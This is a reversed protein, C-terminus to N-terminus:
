RRLRGKGSRRPLEDLAEWCAASLQDGQERLCRLSGRGPPADPCLREVDQGCAELLPAFRQARREQRLATLQARQEPTLLGRIRLMTAMREKRAEVELAGIAELQAMVAAEDPAEESLLGRLVGRAERIEAHLGEIATRTDEALQRIQERTADDLGLEDAHRELFVGPGPGHGPGRPPQAQATGVFAVLAAVLLSRIALRATNM